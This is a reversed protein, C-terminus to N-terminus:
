HYTVTLLPARSGRDSSTSDDVEMLTFIAPGLDEMIRVQFDVLGLQQAKIMLPTVDVTVFNGIDGRTIDGPILISALAPQADRDFDTGLLTPPQFAVLDVRIPVSGSPPEVDDVFFELLTSDITADGPVGGDSALPFDLFARFENGGTPDIGAFVTQVSSSMGQTVVYGGPSSQEIDGDYAADSLIYSVRQPPDSDDGGGCGCLGLLSSAAAIFLTYARM